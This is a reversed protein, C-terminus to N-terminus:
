TYKNIRWIAAVYNCFTIITYPLLTEIDNLRRLYIFVFYKFRIAKTRYPHQKEEDLRRIIYWQKPLRKFCPHNISHSEMRSLTTSTM